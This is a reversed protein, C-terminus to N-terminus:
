PTTTGVTEPEADETPGPAADTSPPAETTTPAPQSIAPRLPEAVLTRATAGPVSLDDSPQLEAVIGYQQTLTDLNQRVASANIFREMTEADGLATIVYPRSLPRFDVILAEGAFRIAATATLRHGNISIAEAGAGWLGNVVYQLDGANVRGAEFASEPRIGGDGLDDLEPNDDLTVVLGPGSLPTTHAAIELRKVQEAVSEGDPGALALSEREQVEKTLADLTREKEEGAAQVAEIQQLLESRVEAAATPKPRLATASVAFMFGTLLAVAAVLVSRTSTARPLGAKERRAAADEYAADLPREMMTTLLTM